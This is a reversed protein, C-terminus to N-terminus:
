KVNSKEKLIKAKYTELNERGKDLRDMSQSFGFQRVYTVLKWIMADDFFVKKDFDYRNKWAPMATWPIGHSIENFLREDSRTYLRKAMTFNAPQPELTKHLNGDGQGRTGHCVACNGGFISDMQALEPSNAQFYGLSNARYYMLADWRGSADLVKSFDHDPLAGCMAEFQKEPSTKRLAENKSPSAGHCSACNQQYAIQGRPLSPPYSPYRFDKCKTRDVQSHWEEILSSVLGTKSAASVTLASFCFCFILFNRM